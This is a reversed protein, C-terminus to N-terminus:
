LPGFPLDLVSVDWVECFVKDRARQSVEEVKHFHVSEPQHKEVGALCRDDDGSGGSDGGSTAVVWCPIM